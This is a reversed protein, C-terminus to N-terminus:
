KFSVSNFRKNPFEALIYKTHWSHVDQELLEYEQGEVLLGRPDDNGGWKVVEDGSAADGLYRVKM